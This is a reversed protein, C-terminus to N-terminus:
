RGRLTELRRHAWRVAEVGLVGLMLGMTALSGAEVEYHHVEPGIQPSTLVPQEAHGAPPRGQLWKQITDADHEVESHLGDLNEEKESERRLGEFRSLKEREMDVLHEGTPPLDSTDGPPKDPKEGVVNEGPERDGPSWRSGDTYLDVPQGKFEGHYHTVNGQSDLVPEGDPSATAPSDGHSDATETAVIESAAQAAETGGPADARKGAGALAPETGDESSPPTENAVDNSPRQEDTQTGAPTGTESAGREHPTEATGIEDSAREAGSMDPAATLTERDEPATFDPQQSDEPPNERVADAYEDRSLPEAPQRDPEGTGTEAPTDIAGAPRNDATATYDPEQTGTDARVDDAYTERDRPEALQQGSDNRPEYEPTDPEDAPATEDAPDDGSPIPQGEARLDDAYEERTRTEAPPHESGTDGPDGTEQPRTHEARQDSDSGGSGTGDLGGSGTGKIEASGDGEAGDPNGTEDIGM